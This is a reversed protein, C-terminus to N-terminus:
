NEHGCLTKGLSQAKKLTVKIIEHQCNSLGRCNKTFHYKKGGDSDCLYVGSQSHNAGASLLFTLFLLYLLKM